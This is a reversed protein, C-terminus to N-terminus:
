EDEDNLHRAEIVVTPRLRRATDPDFKISKSFLVTKPHKVQLDKIVPPDFDAISFTTNFVGFSSDVLPMLGGSVLFGDSLIYSDVYTRERRFTSHHTYRQPVYGIEEDSLFDASLALNAYTESTTTGSTDPRGRKSRWQLPMESHTM